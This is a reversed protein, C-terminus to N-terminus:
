KKILYTKFITLKQIVQTCYNLFKNETLSHNQIGIWTMTIFFFQHNLLNFIIGLSFRSKM